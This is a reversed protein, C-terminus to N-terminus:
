TNLVHVQSAGYELWTSQRSKQTNHEPCSTTIGNLLNTTLRSSKWDKRHDGSCPFYIEGTRRNARLLMQDQSVSEATGDISTQHVERVSTCATLKYRACSILLRRM